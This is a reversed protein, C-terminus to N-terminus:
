GLKVVLFCGVIGAGVIILSVLGNILIGKYVKGSALPNRALAIIGLRAVKGYSLFTFVVTFMVLLMISAYRLALKPNEYAALAALKFIDSIQTTVSSGQSYYHVNLAVKIKKVEEKNGNRYDELATGLVNGSKIAKMGVGKKDSTTIYDGKKIDGNATSVNVMVNGAVVVNYNSSGSSSISSNSPKLAFAPKANIAGVMVNQYPRSSIAADKGDLVIIDGDKGDKDNLSIQIAEGFSNQDGEKNEQASAVPIFLLCILFAFWIQQLRGLM